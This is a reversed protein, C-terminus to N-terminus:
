RVVSYILFWFLAVSLIIRLLWSWGTGSFLRLILLLRLASYM